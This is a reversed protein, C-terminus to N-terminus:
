FGWEQKRKELIKNFQDDTYNRKLKQSIDKKTQAPIGAAFVFPPISKTVVSGSAVISGEGITVGPLIVVNIAIWVNKGIVVPAVFAESVDKHYELPKTHTLIFNQGAISSGRGISVFYPYVDDITVMPGIHVDPGIRVGRMRQLEVRVGNFPMIRSVVQLWHDKTRAWLFAIQAYPGTYGHEKATHKLANLFSREVHYPLSQKEIKLYAKM